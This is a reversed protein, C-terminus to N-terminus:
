WELRRGPDRGEQDSQPEQLGNPRVTTGQIGYRDIEELSGPNREKRRGYQYGVVARSKDELAVCCGCEKTDELVTKM